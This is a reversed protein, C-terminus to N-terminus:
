QNINLVHELPIITDAVSNEGHSIVIMSEPTEAYPNEHFFVLDNGKLIVGSTHKSILSFLKM